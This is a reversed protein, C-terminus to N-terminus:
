CISLAHGKPLEYNVGSHYPTDPCTEACTECYFSYVEEVEVGLNRRFFNKIYEAEKKSVPKKLSVENDVVSSEALCCLTYSLLFDRQNLKFKKEEAFEIRIKSGFIRYLYQQWKFMIDIVDYNYAESKCTFRRNDVVFTAVENPKGLFYLGRLLLRYPSMYDEGETEVKPPEYAGGSSQSVVDAFGVGNNFLLFHGKRGDNPGKGFCTRLMLLRESLPLDETAYVTMTIKEKM